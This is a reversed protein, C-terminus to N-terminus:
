NSRFSLLRHLLQKRYFKEEQKSILKKSGTLYFKFFGWLMYLPGIIFPRGHILRKFLKIGFFFLGGGTKYFIEGHMMNTKRLGIGIGENKLHYFQINEFHKTEWGLFQARIEDVTDWGRSEVFGDIAEFCEKKIVKSAGAAHYSPMKIITWDSDKLELYVGSAIGLKPNSQFESIIKEFYDEGFELDCDLKVILDYSQSKIRDNGFNFAKIVGAGPNRRGDSHSSILEIWTYKNLYKNVIDATKDNSNDNVIIWKKPRLTQNIVSNLTKEIYKEENKVPSIIIYDM